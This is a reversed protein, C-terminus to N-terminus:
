LQDEEGEWLNFGFMGIPNVLRVGLGDKKGISKAVKNVRGMEEETLRVVEFNSKLREKNASKPLVPYGRQIGWAICVQAVSCGKEKALETLIEDTLVTVKKDGKKTSQGQSGLPSYAVPLISHSVCYSILATNPFYPHIEIQNIAPTIKLSSSSLLTTLHSIRFNSVGITKAKGSHYIEEM